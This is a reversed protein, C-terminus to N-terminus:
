KAVPSPYPRAQKVILHAAGDTSEDDDFKFEVDMAYWGNNGAGPGYASSFATHIKDLASGLEYTQRSTLVPTGAPQAITSHQIWTIPQNQQAFYYLFTDCLVGADPAVVEADGQQVNIYFAPDMGSPVYINQTVAVGNAEEDPFNHHVLLAMAVSSHDIGNYEREQYTRYTWVTAWTKRIADLVSNWNAPDGTHSDYCGACPFGDLDEANTSSRFRMSLGPYEAELKEKLKDQFEQGIPAAKIADRLEELRESRIALDSFDEASRMAEFRDFLKNDQMFQVYYYGPIAFAKRLPVGKITALVSYNAAKAGYTLTARKIAELLSSSGARDTVEEIDKLDTVSLDPAPLNVPTPKNKEWWADAEQQTVETVDWTSAGVTLKVWKEKLSALKDNTSANRLGMNPTGRNTALVNVHSLPTQFDQTIIGATVAIDNPIAELVVIDRFGYFDTEVQDKAIFHLRGYAEGLRLPQYDIGAFIQDTTKVHIDSPLNKTNSAVTDSTPHFVLADGFYAHDKVARFLKEVMVSSATDYPAMELAWYKPGSYYTVAGLLFRRDPLFYQESNFAAIAGVDQKGNAVSLNASAFEFHIEYQKSNQFYLTDDYNQDLVIKASSAGPISTNMPVSALTDFDTRCGLDNLYKTSGPDPQDLGISCVKEPTDPPSWPDGVPAVSATTSAGGNAGGAGGRGGASETTETTGGVGLAGGPDTNSSREGDSNCAICLQAAAFASLM